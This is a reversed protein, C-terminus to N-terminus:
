YYSLERTDEQVPVMENTRLDLVSVTRKTWNGHDDRVYAYAIKEVLEGSQDYLEDQDMEQNTLRSPHHQVEKFLQGEQNTTYFITSGDKGIFPAANTCKCNPDQWFSTLEGKEFSMGSVLRGTEDFKSSETINGEPDTTRQLRFIFRGDPGSSEMTQTRGDQEWQTHNITKGNADTVTTEGATKRENTRSIAASQLTGNVINRREVTGDAATRTEHVHRTIKQGQILETTNLQGDGDYYVRVVNEIKGAPDLDGEETLQGTEDFVMWGKQALRVPLKPASRPDKELQQIVYKSTHIPGQFGYSQALSPSRHPSQAPQAQVPQAQAPQHQAYCLSLLLPLALLLRPSM